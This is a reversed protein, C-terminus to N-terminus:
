NQVNVAFFYTPIDTEPISLIDCADAIEGRKWDRKGTLKLSTTRESWQMKVSFMRQSGCIEYIKGLLKSYDYAM